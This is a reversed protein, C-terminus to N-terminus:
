YGLADAEELIKPLDKDEFRDLVESALLRKRGEEAGERSPFEVIIYAEGPDEVNRLIRYGKAGERAGPADQDFAPKWAEYEGVNIRTLIFAM